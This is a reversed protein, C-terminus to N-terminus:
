LRPTISRIGKKLTKEKLNTKQIFKGRIRYSDLSKQCVTVVVETTTKIILEIKEAVIDMATVDNHQALLVALSLGVYGAGAIAIKM